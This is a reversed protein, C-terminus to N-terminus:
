EYVISAQGKYRASFLIQNVFNLVCLCCLSVKLYTFSTLDYYDLGLILSPLIYFALFKGALSIAYYKGIGSYEDKLM